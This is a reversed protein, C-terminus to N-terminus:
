ASKLLEDFKNACETKSTDFAHTYIEMTTSTNSHGLRRSVTKPDIGNNILLSSCTQRLEHFCIPDLNYKKVIKNLTHVCTDPHMYGGDKSTFIRDDDSTWRNKNVIKYAEQWEKYEVLQRITSNSLVIKRNSSETKTKREDVVGKIIKLSKTISMIKTEFDIDSWRLACLESRRAGSDLALIILTKYKIDEKDLVELM